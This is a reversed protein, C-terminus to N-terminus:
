YDETYESLDLKYVPNGEIKRDTMKFGATKYLNIAVENEPEVDLYIEACSFKDRLHEIVKKLGAKGYGQGQHKADVMHRVIWVSKNHPSQGVASFGIMEGESYIGYCEIYPQFKSQALYGANAAEFNEQEKKVRLKVAQIWNEETIERITIVISAEKKM